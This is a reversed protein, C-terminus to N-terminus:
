CEEEGPFRKQKGPYASVTGILVRYQEIMQTDTLSSKLLDWVDLNLRLLTSM